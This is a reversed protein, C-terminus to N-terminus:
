CADNGIEGGWFDFGLSSEHERDKFKEVKTNWEEM